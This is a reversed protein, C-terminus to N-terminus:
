GNKVGAESVRSMFESLLHESPVGSLDTTIAVIPKRYGIYVKPGRQNTERVWDIFYGITRGDPETRIVYGTGDRRTRNHHIQSM